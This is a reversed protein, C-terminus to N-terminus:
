LAENLTIKDQAPYAVPNRAVGEPLSHLWSTGGLDVVRQFIDGLRHVLFFPLLLYVEGSGKRVQLVPGHLVGM